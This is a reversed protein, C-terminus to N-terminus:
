YKTFHFVNKNKKITPDVPNLNNDWELLADRYLAKESIYTRSSREYVREKLIEILYAYAAPHAPFWAMPEDLSEPLDPIMYYEMNLHNGAISRCSDCHTCCNCIIREMHRPLKLLLKYGEITYIFDQPRQSWEQRQVRIFRRKINYYDCGQEVWLAIDKHFSTPLNYTEKGAQLVIPYRAILFNYQKNGKLLIMERVAAKFLQLYVRESISCNGITDSVFAKVEEIMDRPILLNDDSRGYVMIPAAIQTVGDETEYRNDAFGVRPKIAAVVEFEDDYVELPTQPNYHEQHNPAHHNNRSTHVPRSVQFRNIYPM